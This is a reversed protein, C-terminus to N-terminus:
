CQRLVLDFNNQTSYLGSHKDKFLCYLHSYKLIDLHALTQKFM